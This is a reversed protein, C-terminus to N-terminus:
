KKKKWVKKNLNKPQPYSWANHGQVGCNGCNVVYGSRNIKYATASEDLEKKRAKMPQGLQVRVFSPLIVNHSDNRWAEPGPMAHLGEEYAKIYTTLHYCNAMYEELKHRSHYSASCAHICSIRSFQWKGCSFTCGALDM